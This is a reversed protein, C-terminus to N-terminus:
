VTQRAAERVEAPLDVRELGTWARIHLLAMELDPGSYVQDGASAYATSRHAGRPLLRVRYRGKIVSLQARGTRGIITYNMEREKGLL